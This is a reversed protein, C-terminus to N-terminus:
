RGSKWFIRWRGVLDVPKEAYLRKGMPRAKKRVKRRQSDVCALFDDVVEPACDAFEDQLVQAALVALNHEDGLLDGLKELERARARMVPKWIGRLLRTHYWHYKVRKRWEHFTDTSPDDYASAMAKRGRKYTKKLGEGLVDFDASDLDWGAIRKRGEEMRSVFENLLPALDGSHQTADQLKAVLHERVPAFEEFSDGSADALYDFTEVMAQADRLDSLSAAADRYWGNEMSYQERLAPRVLRAVARIKKCRKRARHVAENRDMSDDRIEGIAKDVQEAAIRRIGDGATEKKLLRYSM